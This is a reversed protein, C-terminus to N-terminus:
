APDKPTEPGLLLPFLGLATMPLYAPVDTMPSEGPTMAAFVDQALDAKQKEHLLM